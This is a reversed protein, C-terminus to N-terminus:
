RGNHSRDIASLSTKQVNEESDRDTSSTMLGDPTIEGSGSIMTLPTKPVPPSPSPDLMSDESSVLNNWSDRKQKRRPPPQAPRKMLSPPTAPPTQYLSSNESTKLSSTTACDASRDFSACDSSSM